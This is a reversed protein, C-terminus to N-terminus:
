IKNKKNLTPSLIAKPKKPNKEVIKKKVTKTKNNKNNKIPGNKLRIDASDKLINANIIKNSDIANIQNNNMWNLGFFINKSNSDKIVAHSKTAVIQNKYAINVKNYYELGKLKWTEILFKKLIKLKKQFDDIVGLEIVQNGFVPYIVFERNSQINIQNIQANWFNDTQIFQVFKYVDNLLLSDTKSLIKNSSPFGTFIPINIPYNPKIDMLKKYENIYFSSGDVCFIRAIPTNEDLYINLEDLRNIYLKIKHIYKNKRFNNEIMALQNPNIKEGVEIHNQKLINMVEMHNILNNTQLPNIFINISTYVHKKPHSLYIVIVTILGCILLCSLILWKYKIIKKM